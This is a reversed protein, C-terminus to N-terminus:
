SIYMGAQAFSAWIAIFALATIIVVIKKMGCGEQHKNDPQRTNKGIGFAKRSVLAPFIDISSSLL